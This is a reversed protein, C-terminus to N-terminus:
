EKVLRALWEHVAPPDPLRYRAMTPARAGVVIGFGGRRSAAAFAQEDTLDDGVMVPRRGRFPIQDMLHLLAMGKSSGAPKLEAVCDGYQVEYQGETALAIAEAAEGAARAHHAAARFHLVFCVGSKCELTVGDLAAAAEQVKAKVEIAIEPRPEHLTMSGASDRLAHGHLAGAPLRLPALLADVESLSRGSLIGLAGGTRSHVRDILQLLADDLTVHAPDDAFGVLTGDIDLFIAWREGSAPLPPSQLEITMGM